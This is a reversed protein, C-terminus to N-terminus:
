LFIWRKNWFIMGLNPRNM